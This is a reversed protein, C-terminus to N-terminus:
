RYGGWNHVVKAWIGDILRLMVFRKIAPQESFKTAIFNYGNLMNLLISVLIILRYTFLLKNVKKKRKKKHKM